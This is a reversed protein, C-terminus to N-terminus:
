LVWKIDLPLPVKKRNRGILMVGDEDEVEVKTVRRFDSPMEFVAQIQPLALTSRARLRHVTPVPWAKTGDAAVSEALGWHFYSCVGEVGMVGRHRGNWPSFHRGGNSMWLITSPMVERQYLSIWGWGQEPFCVAAWALPSDTKTALMVADEFGERSPYVSIDTTGGHALPVKDLSTFKGGIELAHYGGVEPTDMMEPVVQGIDFPSTSVLGSGPFAPFLINPHSGLSMPGRMGTIENKQYLASQGAVLRVTKMVLGTRVKTNLSMRVSLDHDAADAGLFKWRKNATEGHPPHEEGKYPTANAGFPLCLFDGRLGKLIQPMSKPLDEKWWPAVQYPSVWRRGLKLKTPWTMGGLPATWVEATNSKLCYGDLGQNEGSTIRGAKSTM